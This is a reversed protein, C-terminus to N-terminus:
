VNMSPIAQHKHSWLAMAYWNAYLTPHYMEEELQEFHQSAKMSILRSALIVVNQMQAELKYPSYHIISGRAWFIHYQQNKMNTQGNTEKINVDIGQAGPAVLMCGCRSRMVHRGCNDGATTSLAVCM